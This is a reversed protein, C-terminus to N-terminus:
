QHELPSLTRHELPSLPEVLCLMWLKQIKQLSSVAEQLLFVQLHSAVLLLHALCIQWNTWYSVTWDVSGLVGQLALAVLIVAALADAESCGKWNWNTWHESGLFVLSLPTRSPLAVVILAAVANAKSCGTLNTWHVSGLLMISLPPKSSCSLGSLGSSSCCCRCCRCCPCVSPLPQLSHM